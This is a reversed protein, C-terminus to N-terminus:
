PGDAECPRMESMGLAHVTWGGRDRLFTVGIVGTREARFPDAGPPASAYLATCKHGERRARLLAIRYTVTGEPAGPDLRSLIGRLRRTFEDRSQDPFLRAV